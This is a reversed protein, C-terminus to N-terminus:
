SSFAITNHYNIEEELFYDIKSIFVLRNPNNGNNNKDSNASLQQLSTQIVATELLM